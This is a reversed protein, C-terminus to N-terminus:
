CGKWFLSRLMYRDCLKPRVTADWILPAEESFNERAQVQQLAVCTQALAQVLPSKETLYKGDLADFMEMLVANLLRVQRQLEAPISLRLPLARPKSSTLSAMTTTVANSAAASVGTAVHGQIPSAIFPQLMTTLFHLVQIKDEAPMRMVFTRFRSLAKRSCLLDRVTPAEMHRALINLLFCGLRTKRSATKLLNLSAASVPAPDFVVGHAVIKFGWCDGQGGESCCKVHLSDGSIRLPAHSGVGPFGRGGTIQAVVGADATTAIDDGSCIVLTDADSDLSSWEDFVVEIYTAGPIKIPWCREYLAPLPHASEVSM